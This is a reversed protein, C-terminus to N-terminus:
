AAPFGRASADGESARRQGGGGKAGATPPAVSTSLVEALPQQCFLNFASPIFLRSAVPSASRVNHEQAMREKRWASIKEEATWDAWERVVRTLLKRARFRDAKEELISM